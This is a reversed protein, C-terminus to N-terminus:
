TKNKDGAIFSHNEALGAKPDEGRGVRVCLGSPIFLFNVFCALCITVVGISKFVLIFVHLLLLVPMVVVASDVQDKPAGELGAWLPNDAFVM